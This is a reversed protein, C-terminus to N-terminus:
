VTCGATKYYLILYTGGFTLIYEGFSYLTAVMEEQDARLKLAIVAQNIWLLLAQEHDNPIDPHALDSPLFRRVAAVVLDPTGVEKAYVTMVAQM